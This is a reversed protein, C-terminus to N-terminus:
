FYLSVIVPQGQSQSSAYQSQQQQSYQQTGQQAYYQQWAARNAAAQDYGYQPQQSQQQLYNELVSSNGNTTLQLHGKHIILIPLTNNNTRSDTAQRLRTITVTGM